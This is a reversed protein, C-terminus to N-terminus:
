AAAGRTTPKGGKAKQQRGLEAFREQEDPSLHAVLDLLAEALREVDVERQKVAIRIQKKM